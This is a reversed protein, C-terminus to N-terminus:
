SREVALVQSPYTSHHGSMVYSVICAIAAYPAVAPGFLEVSIISAAVPTNTTGALVAVLGIAAFTASNLGFVQAFLSRATSGIFFIPTIIGGSGGFGLTINTFVIKVLFAYWVAHQGQLTAQITGLGLGVYQTSFTLTLLVAGGRRHHGQRAGM